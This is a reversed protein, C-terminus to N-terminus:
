LFGPLGFTQVIIFFSLYTLKVQNEIPYLCCAKGEKIVSYGEPVQMASKRISTIRETTTPLFFTFKALTFYM